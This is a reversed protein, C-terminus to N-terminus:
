LDSPVFLAKMISDIEEIACDLHHRAVEDQITGRRMATLMRYVNLIVGNNGMIKLADEKFCRLLERILYLAARQVEACKSSLHIEVCGFIEHIISSISFRLNKCIEALNSLCSALVMPDITEQSDGRLVYLFPNILRNKHKVTIEGAAMTVKALAEGIKSYRQLASDKSLALNRLNAYEDTLVEIVLQTNHVACSVLGKVSQLYIYTDEHKLMDQFIQVVKSLNRITDIDETIVLNTLAILGHGKVPVECSKVEDISKEFKFSQRPEFAIPRASQQNINLHKLRQIDVAKAAEEKCQPQCSKDESVHIKDIATGSSSICHKISKAMERIDSKIHMDELLTLDRLCRQMEETNKHAQVEDASIYKMNYLHHLLTLATLLNETEILTVEQFIEKSNCDKITKGINFYRENSIDKENCRIHCFIAGRHIITLIISTMKSHDKVLEDQLSDNDYMM